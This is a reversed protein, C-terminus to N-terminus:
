SNKEPWKHWKSVKQQLLEEVKLFLEESRVPKEIFSDVPLFEADTEPSFNFYPKQANIATIMLIPIHSYQRDLRVKQAFDFGKSEGKAGFMVDLIILDPVHIKLKEWGEQPDYACAVEYGKVELMKVIAAVLDADDEVVLIKAKSSM